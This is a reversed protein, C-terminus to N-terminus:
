TGIEAGILPTEAALAATQIGSRNQNIGCFQSRIEFYHLSHELSNYVKVFTNKALKIGLQGQLKNIVFL